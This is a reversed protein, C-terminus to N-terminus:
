KKGGGMTKMVEKILATYDDILLRCAYFTNSVERNELKGVQGNWCKEKLEVAKEYDNLLEYANKM